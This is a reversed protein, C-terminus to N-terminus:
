QTRTDGMRRCTNRHSYKRIIHTRVIFHSTNPCLWVPNYFTQKRPRVGRWAVSQNWWHCHSFRHHCEENYLKNYERSYIKQQIYKRWRCFLVWECVCLSCHRSAVAVPYNCVNASGSVLVCKVCAQTQWDTVARLTAVAMWCLYPLASISNLKMPTHRAVNKERENQTHTHTKRKANQIHHMNPIIHWANIIRNNMIWHCFQNRHRCPWTSLRVPFIYVIIRFM